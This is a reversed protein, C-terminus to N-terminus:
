QKAKTSRKAECSTCFWDDEPVEKLGVCYTHHSRNCGQVEVDADDTGCLLLNDEDEDKQCVVCPQTVWIRGKEPCRIKPNGEGKVAARYIVEEVRVDIQYDTNTKTKRTGRTRVRAGEIQTPTIDGHTWFKEIEKVAALVSTDDSPNEVVNWPPPPREEVKKATRKPM